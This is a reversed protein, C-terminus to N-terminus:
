SRRINSRRPRRTAQSLQDV